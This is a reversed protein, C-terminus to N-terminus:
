PFRFIPRQRLAVAGSLDRLTVELSKLWTSETPKASGVYAQFILLSRLFLPAMEPRALENVPSAIAGYWLQVDKILAKADKLFKQDATPGRM